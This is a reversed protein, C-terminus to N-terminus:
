TYMFLIKIVVLVVNGDIKAKLAKLARLGRGM